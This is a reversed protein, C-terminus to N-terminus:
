VFSLKFSDGIQRLSRRKATAAYRSVGASTSMGFLHLGSFPACERRTIRRCRPSTSNRIRRRVKRPIVRCFMGGMNIGIALPGSRNWIWKLGIKAKGVISNLQDNITIPQSVEYMLRFQLHDQLNEGVGALHQISRIGLNSLHEGNGIGSVMLLQPSQIAGATLIVERKAKVDIM